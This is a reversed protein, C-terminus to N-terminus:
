SSEKIQTVVLRFNDAEVIRLRSGPDAQGSQCFAEYRHGALEVYGSPALMTVAVVERGLVAARDAIEPQSRGSRTDAMSFTRALKTKPLVVFEFYLTVAGLLLAIGTAASGGLSGFEVFAATVGGLLCLGAIAGLVGGPVLIEVALLLVGAGFLIIVTTM